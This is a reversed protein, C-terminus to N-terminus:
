KYDEADSESPNSYKLPLRMMFYSIFHDTFKLKIM